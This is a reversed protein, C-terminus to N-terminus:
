YSNPSYFSFLRVHLRTLPVTVFTNSSSVDMRRFMNAAPLFSMIKGPNRDLDFYKDTINDSWNINGDAYTYPYIADWDQIAAYAALFIFAESEFTSPSPHNYETVTFPKGLVRKM